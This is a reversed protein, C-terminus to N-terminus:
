CWEKGVISNAYPGRGGCGLRSREGTKDFARRRYFVITEPYCDPQGVVRFNPLDSLVLVNTSASGVPSIIVEPNGTRYSNRL